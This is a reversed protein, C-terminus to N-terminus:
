VASGRSKLVRRVEDLAGGRKLSYHRWLVLQAVTVCVAVAVVTRALTATTRYSDGGIVVSDDPMSNAGGARWGSADLLAVGLLPALSEGPKSLMNVVGVVSAAASEGGREEAHRAADEDVLECEALPALRCSLETLVRGLVLHAVLCTPSRLLVGGGAGLVLAHGLKACMVLEIARHVGLAHVVGAPQCLALTAVHPAVFAAGIAAARRAPTLWPPALAVLLLPLHNQADGTPPTVSTILM